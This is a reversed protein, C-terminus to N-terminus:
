RMRWAAVSLGAAVVAFTPLGYALGTALNVLWSGTTDAALGTVVAACFAAATLRRAAPSPVPTQKGGVM